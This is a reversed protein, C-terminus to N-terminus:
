SLVLIPKFLCLIRGYQALMRLFKFLRKNKVFNILCWNGKGNLATVLVLVQDGKLIEQARRARKIAYKRTAIYSHGQVLSRVAVVIPNPIIHSPGQDLGSPILSTDDQWFAELV